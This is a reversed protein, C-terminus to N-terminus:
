RIKMEERYKRLKEEAENQEQHLLLAEENDTTSENEDNELRYRAREEKSKMCGWKKTIIAFVFNIVYPVLVVLGPILGGLFFPVLIGIYWHPFLLLGIQECKIRCHSMPIFVAYTMITSMLANWLTFFGIMPWAADSWLKM